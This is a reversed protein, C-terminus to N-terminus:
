PPALGPPSPPTPGGTHRDPPRRAMGAGAGSGAAGPRNVVAIGRPFKAKMGEAVLRAVVDVLGGPPYGALLTVPREPYQAAAPLSFALLALLAIRIMKAISANRPFRRRRGAPLTFENLLVVGLPPVVMCACLESILRPAKVITTPAAIKRRYATTNKKRAKELAPNSSPTAVSFPTVGCCSLRSFGATM